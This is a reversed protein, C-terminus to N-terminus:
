GEELKKLEEMLEKEKEELEKLKGMKEEDEGSVGADGPKKGAVVERENKIMEKFDRIQQAKEKKKQSEKRELSKQREMAENKRKNEIISKLTLSIAIIGVIVTIHHISNRMEAFLGWIGTFARTSLEFLTKFLSDQMGGGGSGNTFNSQVSTQNQPVTTLPRYPQYVSTSTVTRPVQTTTTTTTQTITTTQPVVTVITRGVDTLNAIIQDILTSDVSIKQRYKSGAGYFNVFLSIKWESDGGLIMNDVNKEFLVTDQDGAYRTQYLPMYGNSFYNSGICFKYLKSCIDTEGKAKNFWSSAYVGTIDNGHECIWKRNPENEPIPCKSYDYLNETDNFFSEVMYSPDIINEEAICTQYAEDTLENQIDDCFDGQFAIGPNTLCFEGINKGWINEVAQECIYKHTEPGWASGTASLFIIICIGIAFFITSRM